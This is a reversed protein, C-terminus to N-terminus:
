TEIRTVVTLHMSSSRLIFTSSKNEKLFFRYKRLIAWCPTKYKHNTQAMFASLPM